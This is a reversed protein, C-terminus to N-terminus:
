DVLTYVGPPSLIILVLESSAFLILAGAVLFVGGPNPKVVGRALGLNHAAYRRGQTTLVAFALLVMVVSQVYIMWPYAWSWRLMTLSAITISLVTRTWLLSTREPQLGPDDHHIANM